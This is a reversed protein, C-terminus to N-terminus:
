QALEIFADEFRDKISDYEDKIDELSVENETSIGLQNLLSEAEQKSLGDILQKLHEKPNTAMNFMREM